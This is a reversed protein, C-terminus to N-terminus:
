YLDVGIKTDAKIGIIVRDWRPGDASLDNNFGICLGKSNVELVFDDGGM